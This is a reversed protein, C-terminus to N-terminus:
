ARLGQLRAPVQAAQAQALADAARQLADAADARWSAAGRRGTLRGSQVRACLATVSMVGTQSYDHVVLLLEPM